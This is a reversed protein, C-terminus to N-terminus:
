KFPRRANTAELIHYGQDRLMTAIMARVLPEDEALLITETGSM